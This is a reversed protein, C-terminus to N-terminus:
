GMGADGRSGLALLEAIEERCYGTLENVVKKAQKGQYQQRQKPTIWHPHGVLVKARSYVVMPHWGAQDFLPESPDFFRLFWLPLASSVSEEESAIAVPLVALNHVPARLLLHAFGRQFEGVENPSTLKVMPQAGEPFIGVWQRSLLLDTAQRLFSYRRKELTDLPFGGIQDVIERMVPVQSMYHHCAIRIPHRLGKMLLLPDMFSRHNSVVVVPGDQPIRNEYYIFMRVGTGNLFWDSIQLPRNSSM